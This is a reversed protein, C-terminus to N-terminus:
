DVIGNSGEGFIKEVEEIYPSGEPCFKFRALGGADKYSSNRLSYCATHGEAWSEMKTWDKCQRYRPSTLREKAFAEGDPTDDAHCIVDDRLLSLCHTLHGFPVTQEQQRHMEM